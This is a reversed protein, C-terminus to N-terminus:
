VVDPFALSSKDVPGPANDILRAIDRTKRAVISMLRADLTGPLLVFRALVPHKQGQRHARAIAQANKAPVPSPEAIVVNHSAHLTISEGAAEISLIILRLRPNTQFQEISGERVKQPMDGTISLPSFKGLAECLDRIVERHHAFVIVKAEEDDELMDKVFLGVGEVKARGILRRVTSFAVSGAQVASLLEDDDLTDLDDLDKMATELEDRLDPDLSLTMDAPLSHEVIRLDPMDKLVDKMRKRDIFPEIRKALESTNKSGVVRRGYPTNKLVCFRELFMQETMVGYQPFLITDPALARLHTYFEGPHNLVPTGSLCWIYGAGALPAGILDLNKGYVAKTRLANPNKLYHAEDLIVVDWPHEMQARAVGLHTPLRSYAVIRVGEGEMFRYPNHAVQTNFVRVSPIDSWDQFHNRWVGTAIPPCLVLIRIAGAKVAARVATPTKGVGADWVLMARPSLALRNAGDRQFDMLELGPKM